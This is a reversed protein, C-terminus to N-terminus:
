RKSIANCSIQQTFRGIKGENAGRDESRMDEENKGQEEGSEGNGVQANGARANAKLQAAKKESCFRGKKWRFVEDELASM